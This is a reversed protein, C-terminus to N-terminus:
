FYFSFRLRVSYVEDDYVIPPDNGATLWHGRSYGGVLKVYFQQRVVYQIAAFGQYLWFNDVVGNNLIDAQDVNRTFLSGLGLILPHRPDGNSVNLFGGISTRTLSGKANFNGAQDISWVTGQAADVGFEVHPAFVFQITGGVGKSTISTADSAGQGGIHQYEVGAKLKLWGLDYIAVPRAAYAPGSLSGVMTLAEVRLNRTPYYHFALNGAAGQPRFQNDTLGYFAINFNDGNGVAGKREFTNQDLGMGLHFVEWGEFRGVQFDWSSWRGIRLWLDDTDAGGTDARSITQDGTGVLEVQGQIFHDGDFSYTPTFRALLRAQQKWYKIRSAELNPNAGWPGFKEYSTDIWGFGSVGVVFSDQGNRSPMYPWQLGHFTLWLSGYPLGRILPEPYASGPLREVGVETIADTPPAGPGTPAAAPPTVATETARAAPAAALLVLILAAISRRSCALCPFTRM